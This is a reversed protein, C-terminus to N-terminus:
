KLIIREAYKQEGDNQTLVVFLTGKNAQSLDIDTLNMVGGDYNNLDRRFVERGFSDVILLTTPNKETKFEISIRGESPNPFVKFQDVKM